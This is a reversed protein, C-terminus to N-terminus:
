CHPAGCAVPLQTHPPQRHGLLVASRVCLQSVAPRSPHISPHVPPHTPLAGPQSSPQFAAPACYAHLVCPMCACLCTSLCSPLCKYADGGGAMPYSLPPHTPPNTTLCAAPCFPLLFSPTLHTGTCWSEQQASVYSPCLRGTSCCVPLCVFLHLPLRAPTCAPLLKISPHVVHVPPWSHLHGPLCAPLLPAPLCTAPAGAPM